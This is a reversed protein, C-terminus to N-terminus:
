IDKKDSATAKKGKLLSKFDAIKSKVRTVIKKFKSNNIIDEAEEESLIRKILLNFISGFTLAMVTCTFIIVNYPMSFDPTPLTLLATTTRMQYVIDTMKEDKFLTVVAPELEFGHNADPPYEAYLLMSKDFKLNITISTNRPVYIKFEFHTPRERDISPSYFIESIFKSFEASDDVNVIAHSNSLLNRETITLSHLYIRVFWPLTQSLIIHKDESDSNVIDIRFGGFDQSYGTLSRSVKIPPVQAPLVKDSQESSFKFDYSDKTTIDYCVAGDEDIYSEFDEINTVPTIKWTENNINGCVKTPAQAFMCGGNINHGFIDSLSWEIDTREGLPFCTYIDNKKDTDCRLESGPTPKPIPSKQRELTKPINMVMGINQNMHYHCSLEESGDVNDCETTIDIGMTSWESNFVKHGSLLSSIGVKGKTPLFKLFPTLNETCVPERPLASRLIYLNSRTDIKEIFKSEPKFLNVPYTTSSSDIFNLSACFLGSLSNVLKIWNQFAEEESDSEIVALLEVGTGGSISGNKPLSGWTEQDWWGQAFRLHLERAMTSQLVPGFIRPFVTYQKFVFSDDGDLTEKDEYFSIEESDLEFDFSMGLNNRPLPKLSLKEKYPYTIKQSQTAIVVSTWGILLLIRNTIFM